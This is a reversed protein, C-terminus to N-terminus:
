AKMLQDSSTKWFAVTARAHNIFEGLESTKYTVSFGDKRELAYIPDVVNSFDIIINFRQEASPRGPGFVNIVSKPEVPDEIHYAFRSQQIHIISRPVRLDSRMKAILDEVTKLAVDFKLSRVQAKARAMETSKASNAKAAYYQQVVFWTLLIVVFIIAVVVNWPIM